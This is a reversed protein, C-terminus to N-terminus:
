MRSVGGGGATCGSCREAGTGYEALVSVLASAACTDGRAVATGVGARFSPLAQYRAYRAGATLLSRTGAVMCTSVPPMSGCYTRACDHGGVGDCEARRTEGHNTCQEAPSQAGRARGYLRRSTNARLPIRVVSFPRAGTYSRRVSLPVVCLLPVARFHPTYTHSHGLAVRAHEGSRRRGM